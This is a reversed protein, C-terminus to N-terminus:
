PSLPDSCSSMTADCQALSFRYAMLPVSPPNTEVSAAQLSGPPWAPTGSWATFTLVSPDCPAPLLLFVTEPKAAPNWTGAGNCGYFPLNSALPAGDNVTLTFDPEIRVWSYHNAGGGWGILWIGELAGPNYISAPACGLYKGGGCDCDCNPECPEVGCPCFCNEAVVSCAANAVCSCYDPETCTSAPLGTAGGGGVVVGGVGGTGAGGTGAGGPGGGGTVLGGGGGTGAGSGTAGVAGPGQGGTEVSTGCAVVFGLLGMGDLIRRHM